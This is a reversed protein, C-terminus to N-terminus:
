ITSLRMLLGTKDGLTMYLMEKPMTQDVKWSIIKRFETIKFPMHSAPTYAMMRDWNVLQKGHSTIIIKSWDIEGKTDGSEILLAYLDALFSYTLFAGACDITRNEVHDLTGQLYEKGM